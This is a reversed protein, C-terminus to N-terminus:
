CKFIDTTYNLIIIGVVGIGILISLEKVTQLFKKNM